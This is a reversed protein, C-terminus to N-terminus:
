GRLGCWGWGWGRHAGGAGCWRLIEEEGLQSSRYKRALVERAREKLQLATRHPVSYPPLPAPSAPLLPALVCHLRGRRPLLCCSSVVVATLLVNKSLWTRAEGIAM